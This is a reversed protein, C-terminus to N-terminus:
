SRGGEIALIALGELVLQPALQPAADVLLPALRPADGGTLLLAPAGSSTEACQLARRGREVAGALAHLVGSVIADDTGRALDAYHGDAAPLEATGRALAELMLRYGPVIMGGLFRGDAALADVTMATGADVVLTPSRTRGRAGVLAAFRDAGLAAPDRYTSTVGGSAASAVARQLPIGRRAAHEALVAVQAAGAVSCWVIARVAGSDLVPALAPWLGDPPCEGTARFRGAVPLDGPHLGWKVRSNGIDVLAIM